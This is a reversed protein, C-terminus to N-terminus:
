KELKKILGDSIYNDISMCVDQSFLIANGAIKLWDCENVSPIAEKTIGMRICADIIGANFSDGAGITSVPEIGPVPVTIVMEKSRITVEQDSHTFILVSDDGSKISDFAAHSDRAAFIHLFDEDSGRVIDALSFNKMIRPRLRPLEHLHPKRFNPDYLIMANNARAPLLFSALKEHLGDAIAYFSGFLVIDHNGPAPLEGKLREEQLDSYFSYRADAHEDLFALAVTTKGKQQRNLYRTGVNNKRLFGAIMEGPEDAAVDGIFEVRHGARGLSVATNLM